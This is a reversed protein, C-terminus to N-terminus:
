PLPGNGHEYTIIMNQDMYHVVFNIGAEAEIYAPVSPYDASNAIAIDPIIRHENNFDTMEGITAPNTTEANKDIFQGASNVPVINVRVVHIGIAM